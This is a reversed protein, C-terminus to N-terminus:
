PSVPSQITLRDMLAVYFLGATSPAVGLPASALISGRGRKGPMLWWVQM